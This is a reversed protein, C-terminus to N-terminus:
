IGLEECIQRYHREGELCLRVIEEKFAPPYTTEKRGVHSVGM